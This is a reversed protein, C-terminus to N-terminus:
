RLISRAHRAYKAPLAHDTRFARRPRDTSASGRGAPPCRRRRSGSEDLRSRARRRRRAESRGPWPSATAHCILRAADMPGEEVLFSALDAALHEAPSRARRDLEIAILVYREAKDDAFTDLGAHSRTWIPKRGTQAKPDAPAIPMKGTRGPMSVSVMRPSVSSALRLATRWQPRRQCSAPRSTKIM